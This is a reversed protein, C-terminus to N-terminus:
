ILGISSSRTKKVVHKSLSLSRHVGLELLPHAKKNPLYHGIIGGAGYCMKLAENICEAAVCM